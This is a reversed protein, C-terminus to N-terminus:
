LQKMTGMVNGRYSAALDDDAVLDVAFPFRSEEIAEKISSIFGEPTKAVLRYLLDVDSHPHHSGTARSGFIYVQAGHKKLPQIVLEDLIHFQQETMGYIM